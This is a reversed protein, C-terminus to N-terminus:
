RCNDRAKLPTSAGKSYNHRGPAYHIDEQTSASLAFLNRQGPHLAKTMHPSSWQSPDCGIVRTNFVNKGGGEENPTLIPLM